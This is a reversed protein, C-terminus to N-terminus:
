GKCILTWQEKDGVGERQGDRTRAKEWVSSLALGSSFLQQVMKEPGAVRSILSKSMLYSKHAEKTHLIGHKGLM